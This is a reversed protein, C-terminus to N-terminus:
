PMAASTRGEVLKNERRRQTGYLDGIDFSVLNRTLRSTRGYLVPRDVASVYGTWAATLSAMLDTILDALVRGTTTLQSAAPQPLYFRGRGAVQPLDSRLSVVLATDASMAPAAAVGAIVQGTDVRALQKGTPQDITSTTVNLMSVGATVHDKYGNGASAGNWVAANWTVAAAQAAALSRTSSAWWSYNFQDGAALNGQFRHLYLTM